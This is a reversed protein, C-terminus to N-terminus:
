RVLCADCTLLLLTLTLSLLSANIYNRGSMRETRRGDWGERELDFRHPAFILMLASFSLNPHHMSTPHSYHMTVRNREYGARKSVSLLLLPASAHPSTVGTKICTSTCLVMIFVHHRLCRIGTARNINPAKSSSLFSCFLSRALSLSLASHYIESM